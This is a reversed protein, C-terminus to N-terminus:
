QLLVYSRVVKSILQACISLYVMYLFQLTTVCNLEVIVCITEVTASQYKQLGYVYLYYTTQKFYFLSYKRQPQLMQADRHCQLQRRELRLISGRFYQMYLVNELFYVLCTYSTNIWNIDVVAPINPRATVIYLQMCYKHALAATQM